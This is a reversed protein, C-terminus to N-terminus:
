QLNLWRFSRLKLFSVGAIYGVTCYVRFLHLIFCALIGWGQFKHLNYNVYIQVYIEKTYICVYTDPKETNSNQKQFSNKIIQYSLIKSRLIQM